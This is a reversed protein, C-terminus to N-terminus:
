DAASSLFEIACGANHSLGSGVKASCYPCRGPSEATPAALFDLIAEELEDIRAVLAPFDEKILRSHLLEDCPGHESLRTDADELRSKADEIDPRSM